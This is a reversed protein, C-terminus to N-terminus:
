SAETFGDFTATSSVATTASYTRAQRRRPASSAPSPECWMCRRGYSLHSIDHCRGGRSEDRGIHHQRVNTRLRRRDCFRLRFSGRRDRGIKRRNLRVDRAYESRRFRWGDREGFRQRDLRLNGGCDMRVLRDYRVHRKPM